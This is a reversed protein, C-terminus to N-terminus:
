SVQSKQLCVRSSSDVCIPNTCVVLIDEHLGDYNQLERLCVHFSANTPNEVWLSAADHKYASSVHDATVLIIPTASFKDKTFFEYNNTASTLSFSIMWFRLMVITFIQTPLHLQSQLRSKLYFCRYAFRGDLLPLPSCPLCCGSWDIIEIFM